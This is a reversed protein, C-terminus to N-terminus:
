SVTWNVWGFRATLLVVIGFAIRYWAFWRFDHTAVYRILWRIVLFASIFSVVLGVAWMGADEVAFLHRNKWSDYLGAAILTPVALFFSFETATRRDIGLMLGGMITAGARSVGPIMSVVQCLGVAFATPAPMQEVAHHRPAPLHREIMLIAIGGLVLTSVVVWPDFLYAKILGYALAGVVVTPLFALLINRVFRRQDPDHLLGTTARAFRGFYEWCVAGIAGLQIVVEFVKGPPGHFGILDGALILHGTSSVPLFETLGEIVGLLLAGLLLELDM